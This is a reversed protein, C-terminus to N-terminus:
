GAATAASEAANPEDSSSPSLQELLMLATSRPLDVISAVRGGAATDLVLSGIRWRRQFPSESLHVTQVKRRPVVWTIRTFVGSRAIAFGTPRAWARARYEAAAYWAAPALLLALALWDSGRIFAMVGTLILVPTALRVFSRRRSVPAVSSLEVGDFSADEFVHRLLTAVDSRRAIPVFAEAGGGQGQKNQGPHAGATEIKMSALGLLRRLWTEEIRVAQVRELPVTSHHRSLLGYERRLDTGVRTLTFGHFRVLTAGISLLWGVAAVALIGGAVALAAGAIGLQLSDRFLQEVASEVQTLMGFDSGVEFLTAVGAAILGAENSTAGAVALDRTDLALLVEREERPAEVAVGDEGTSQREATAQARRRILDQQLVRAEDLGLVQLSAEAQVGSSATELRLQAVGFVRELVTQELDINQVRALPIVRRRRSFVGSDLILDDGEVRFRFSLWRATAMVVSPVTLIGLIWTAVGGPGQGASAGALIAALLFQRGLFLARSVVTFGHLRRGESPM